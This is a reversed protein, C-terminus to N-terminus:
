RGGGEKAGAALRAEVVETPELLRARDLPPAGDHTKLNVQAGGEILHDVWALDGHMAALMLARCGSGKQATVSGSVALILAAPPLTLHTLNLTRM